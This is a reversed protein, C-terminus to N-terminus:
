TRAEPVRDIGGAAWPHCRLVRRIALAAGRLAGHRAIAQAAYESCTPHYRCHRGTLPSLFRRYGGILALLMAAMPGRKRPEVTM